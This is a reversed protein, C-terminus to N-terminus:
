PEEAFIVVATKEGMDLGNSWVCGIRFTKGDDGFMTCMIKEPCIGVAGYGRRHYVTIRYYGDETIFSGDENRDLLVPCFEGFLPVETVAFRCLGLHDRGDNRDGDVAYCTEGNIVAHAGRDFYPPDGAKWDFVNLCILRPDAGEFKLWLYTKAPDDSNIEDKEGCVVVAEKERFTFVPETYHTEQELLIERLEGDLEQRDLWREFYWEFAGEEVISDFPEFPHWGNRMALLVFADAALVLVAMVVAPVGYRKKRKAEKSM